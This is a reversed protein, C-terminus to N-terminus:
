EAWSIYRLELLKYETYFIPYYHELFLSCTYVYHKRNLVGIGAEKKQMVIWNEIRM